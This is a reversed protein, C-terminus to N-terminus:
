PVCQKSAQRAAIADCNGTRENRYAILKVNCQNKVNQSLNGDYFVDTIPTKNQDSQIFISQVQRRWLLM